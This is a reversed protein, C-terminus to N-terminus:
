LFIAKVIIYNVSGVCIKPPCGPSYLYAMGSEIYKEGRLQFFNSTYLKNPTKNRNSNDYLNPLTLTGPHPVFSPWRYMLYSDSEGWVSGFLYM